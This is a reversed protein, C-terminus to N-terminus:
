QRLCFVPTVVCEENCRGKYQM